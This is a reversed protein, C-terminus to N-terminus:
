DHRRAPIGAESRTVQEATEVVTAEGEFVRDNAAAPPQRERLIRRIERTKWWLYGWAALGAVVLVAILVVSFMLGLALLALGIVASAVKQLPSAPAHPFRQRYM